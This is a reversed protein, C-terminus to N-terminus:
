KAEMAKEVCKWLLDASKQWSFLEKRKRGKAILEQRLNEDTAIQFMADAISQPSAPDILLAADGAIEPM